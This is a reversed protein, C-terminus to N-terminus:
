VLTIIVQFWQCSFYILLITKTEDNQVFFSLFLCQLQQLIPYRLEAKDDELWAWSSAGTLPPPRLYREQIKYNGFHTSKWICIKNQEM